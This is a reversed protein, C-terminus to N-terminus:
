FSVEWVVNSVCRISRGDHYIKTDRYNCILPLDMLSNFLGTITPDAKPKLIFPLPLIIWDWALEM